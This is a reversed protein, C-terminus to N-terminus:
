AIQPMVVSFVTGSHHPSRSSRVRITWRNKKMIESTVWLCLGTSPDGEVLYLHGQPLGGTRIDDLGSIGTPIRQPDSEPSRQFQPIDPQKGNEVIEDL